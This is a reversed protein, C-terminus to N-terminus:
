CLRIIVSLTQCALLNALCITMINRSAYKCDCVFRSAGRSSSSLCGSFVSINDHCLFLWRLFKKSFSSASKSSALTSMRRDAGGDIEAFIEFAIRMPGMEVDSFRGRDFGRWRPRGFERMQIPMWRVRNWKTEIQTLIWEIWFCDSRVANCHYRPTSTQTLTDVHTHTHTHTYCLGNTTNRYEM